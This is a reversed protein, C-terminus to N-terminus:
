KSEIDLPKEADIYTKVNTVNQIKWSKEVKMMEAIKKNDVRFDKSTDGYQDYSIIYTIFCKEQSCNSHTIKFKKKKLKSLDSFNEFEEEEMAMISDNMEGILYDGMENRDLDGNFRANVFTSLTEEAGKEKFCGTLLLAVVVILLRRM